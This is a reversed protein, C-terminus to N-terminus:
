NDLALLRRRKQTHDIYRQLTRQAEGDLRQLECGLRVGGTQPNLSTVHCLQLTAEFRTNPDLEVRVRHVTVGPSLPPVDDPLFLACGGTSVDLVRLALMMDPISPHRLHVTPSSRPLTRVRFSNRRQFRFVEDPLQAQLACGSGGRVEVLGAAEFELKVSDLYAVASVEGAEVLAHLQPASADASFTICHQAPDMAWLTTTYSTGDPASLHVPTGADVLSKLLRVVEAPADVRFEAAPDPAPAPQTNRFM